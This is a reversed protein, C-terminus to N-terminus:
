RVSVHISEMRRDRVFRSRAINRTFEDNKVQETIQQLDENQKELLRLEAELTGLKKQSTLYSDYSRYIMMAEILIVCAAVVGFLRSM